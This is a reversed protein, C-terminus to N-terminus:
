ARGAGKHSKVCHMTLKKATAFEKSCVSCAHKPEMLPVTETGEKSSPPVDVRLENSGVPPGSVDISTSVVSPALVVEDSELPRDEVTQPLPTVAKLKARAERIDALRQSDPLGFHKSVCGDTDEIVGMNICARLAPYRWRLAEDCSEGPKYRRGDNGIFAKRAVLGM